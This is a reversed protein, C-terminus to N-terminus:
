AEELWGYHKNMRGPKVSTVAAKDILRLVDVAQGKKNIYSKDEGCEDVERIKWFMTTEELVEAWITKVRRAEPREWFTIQIYKVMPHQCEVCVQPTDGKPEVNVKSRRVM